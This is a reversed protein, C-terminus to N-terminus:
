MVTQEVGQEHGELDGARGDSEHVCGERDNEPQNVVEEREHNEGNVGAHFLEVTRQDFGGIVEPGARGADEALDDKGEGLGTNGGADEENKNRGDGHKGDGVQHSAPSIGGDALDDLVLEGPGAVLGEAGGKSDKEEGDEDDAEPQAALEAAALM